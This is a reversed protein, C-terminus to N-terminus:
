NENVNIRPREETNKKKLGITETPGETHRSIM